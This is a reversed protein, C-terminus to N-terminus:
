LMNDVLHHSINILLKKLFVMKKWIVLVPESVKNIYPQGFDIIHKQTDEIAKPIM